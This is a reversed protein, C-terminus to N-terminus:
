CTGLVRRMGVGCTRCCMWWTGHLWWFSPRVHVRGVVCTVQAVAAHVASHCVACAGMDLRLLAEGENPGGYAGYIASFCGFEVLAGRPPDNFMAQLRQAADWVRQADEAAQQMAEESELEEDDESGDNDDGWDEAATYRKGGGRPNARTLHSM